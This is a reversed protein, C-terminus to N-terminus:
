NFNKLFEHMKNTKRKLGIKSQFLYNIFTEILKKQFINIKSSKHGLKTKQNFITFNNISLLSFLNVLERWEFKYTSSFQLSRFKKNSNKNIGVCLSGDGDFYGRWWYPKLNEPIKSLIKSPESISKSNYDNEYLFNYLDKSNVNITTTEKWTENRKRKQLNWKGLKNIYTLIDSADESIIEIAVTYCNSTKNKRYNIYGDAWFYGLFYAVEPKKIDLFQEPNIKQMSYHKEYGIKKIGMRAAQAQVADENRNLYLSCYKAGYKPYNKQIYNLENETYIMGHIVGVYPNPLNQNSLHDFFFIM